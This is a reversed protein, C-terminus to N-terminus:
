TFQFSVVSGTAASTISVSTSVFRLFSGRDIENSSELLSSSVFPFRSRCEGDVGCNGTLLDLNGNFFHNAEIVLLRAFVISQESSSIGDIAEESLDSLVM